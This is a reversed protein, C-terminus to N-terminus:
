AGGIMQRTDHYFRLHELFTELSNRELKGAPAALCPDGDYAAMEVANAGDFVALTAPYCGTCAESYHIYPIAAGRLQEAISWGGGNVEEFEVLAVGNSNDIEAYTCDVLEVFKPLDTSRILFRGYSRDGM